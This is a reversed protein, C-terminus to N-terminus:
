ESDTNKSAKYADRAKKAGYGLGAALLVSIGGDIPVDNIDDAGGDQAYLAVNILIFILCSLLSKTFFRM